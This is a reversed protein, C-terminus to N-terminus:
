KEELVLSFNVGLINNVKITGLFKVPPEIEFETFHLKREGTLLAKKGNKALFLCTIPYTRSVGALTIEVEGSLNEQNINESEKILNLFKVRIHPYEKTNITKRFDKTMMSNFCDFNQSKLTIEGNWFSSNGDLAISETLIEKGAYEKSACRFSSINTTGTIEIVSEDSVQWIRSEFTEESPQMLVSIWIILIQILRM